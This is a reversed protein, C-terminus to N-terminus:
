GQHGQEAALRGRGKCTCNGSPRTTGERTGRALRMLWLGRGCTTCKLLTSGEERRRLDAV